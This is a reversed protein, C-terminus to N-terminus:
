RGRRQQFPLSGVIGGILAQFHYEQQVTQRVLERVTPRDYPEVGRGLAYTLMKEALGRTFEPMNERLLTKMEAPSGFSRGNPLEGSPDVPFKGDETRWRGIADYNELSFGLPDMRRHCSACVPDVRHQELQKRLSQAVGVKTEDLPPVAAPPPPPPANLVNELLYKGRLVPSTRTPYSSVTLVSAQTFVGSRQDTNLEVRRFEPGSVGQIGYHTALRENLFTYRADIFDTLPRNERLVADFFLRTESRMADRLEPGWTPFRTADPKAADLSRTELWQGAFNDALAISKPDAIMRALLADFTARYRLRGGEALRLM